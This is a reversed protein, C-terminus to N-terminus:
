KNEVLKILDDSSIWWVVNDESYYANYGYVCFAQCDSDDDYHGNYLTGDKTKFVIDTANDPLKGDEIFNPLM